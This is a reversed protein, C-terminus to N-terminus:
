RIEVLEGTDKLIHNSPVMMRTATLPYVRSNKGLITGPNIVSNAGIATKDGLLASFKWIKTQIKETSSINVVVDTRDQKLNSLIAGGGLHAHNGLIADGVYNYHSTEIYKMLIANKVEVSNGIITGEMIYSNERIYATHRVQVKPGIIINEGEFYVNETIQATNHVFINKKIENYDNSLNNIEEKIFNDIEPIAEWPYKFKTLFNKLNEEEINWLGEATLENM